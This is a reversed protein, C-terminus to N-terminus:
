NNHLNHNDYYRAKYKQFYPLGFTLTPFRLLDGWSYARIRARNLANQNVESSYPQQDDWGIMPSIRFRWRGGDVFGPFRKEFYKM